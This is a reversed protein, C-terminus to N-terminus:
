TGIHSPVVHRVLQGLVAHGVLVLHRHTVAAHGLVLTRREAPVQSSRRAVVVADRVGYGVDEQEREDEGKSRETEGDEQSVRATSSPKGGNYTALQSTV